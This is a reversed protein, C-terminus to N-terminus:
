KGDTTVFVRPLHDPSCGAEFRDRFEGPQALPKQDAAALFLELTTNM